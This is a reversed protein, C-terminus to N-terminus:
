KSKKKYTTYGAGASLLLMSMWLFIPTTDGTKPTSPKKTPKIAPKIGPKTNSNAGSNTNSNGNPNPKTDPKPTPKVDPTKDTITINGHPSGYKEATVVGNLEESVYSMVVEDLATGLNTNKTAVKFVHYVDGGSALFDNTAIHYVEKENFPKGNISQITVRKISNPKHYTSGPYQAGKDFKASTNVTFRIGAVHPFGGLPEPVVSTAVELAELLESGTIEVISLENGFPLVTNIDKKTINGAAISARIGGGNTIAADVPINEKNCAWVMADTILNGLNTEQTRVHEKSGDLDIETKGIVTGYEKDITAQIEDAKAKCAPDSEITLEDTVISEVKQVKKDTITVKGINKLKTGTSTLYANEVKGTGGTAELVEDLTSHSHGDILLDIGKVNKLLDISGHGASEKDTGLHGLCIIIDCGEKKLTDVQKQACAFMENPDKTGLFTVDKIKAPHAKTATEPTDMGFFGIKTGSNSTVIFHDKFALQNKYLVNAALLPFAAHQNLKKLNEYGFDFEHNGLAGVDYGALNMMEIANLGQTTNVTPDGQAFDGADVLVVFKGEAELQKKLAAVKEYGHIAGHVDNTHLVIIEEPLTKVLTTIKKLGKTVEQSLDKPLANSAELTTLEKKLSLLMPRDSPKVGSKELSALTDNIEKIRTAASVTNPKTNVSLEPVKNGNAEKKNHLVDITALNDVPANEMPVLPTLGKFVSGDLTASYENVCVNYTTKDDNIDIWQGDDTVISLVKIGGEVPIYTAKIGSFQDGFNSAQYGGDWGISPNLGILATELQKALQKGTVSYTLIHNGFPSITYIDAVSIERSTSGEPISLDTRIGGRNAFAAITHHEKTIDLMLDTIWNGATTATTENNIPSKRTLSTRISGLVETMEGKIAEWAEKSISLVEPDMNKANSEYLHSHDQKYASIEVYTPESVKVEKTNPNIQITAESYGYLNCNGQMYPVGNKAVGNVARHTHGGAVLDVLKPDVSEAISVPDSHTLIVIVDAEKHVKEILANLKTKDTDIKYPAIKDAKIDASYDDSWGIIGVKYNGKQVVTYDQTFNVRNGSLDYLNSMLVPIDPDGHHSGISYPALTGKSDTAYKTVDWDFEHNGLAIADYKMCDLAALLPAGFSKNSHPTGQYTDGGDLLLVNEGNARAKNVIGGFYAMRYEFTSENYSSIDTIHGHIDTTEFVKITDLKTEKNEASPASPEEKKESANEKQSTDVTTGPAPAAQETNEPKTELQDPLEPNTEPQVSVEPKKDTQDSLEPKTETQESLEPKVETSETVTTDPALTAEEAYVSPIYTMTLIMALLLASTRKMFNKM